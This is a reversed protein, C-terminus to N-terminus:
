LKRAGACRMIPHHQHIGFSQGAAGVGPYRRLEPDSHASACLITNISACRAAAEVARSLTAYTWVLRGTDVVGLVFLLLLPLVIAYEIAVNGGRDAAFAQKSARLM